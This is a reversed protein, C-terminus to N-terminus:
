EKVIEGLVMGRLFFDSEQLIFVSDATMVIRKGSAEPAIDHKIAFAHGQIRSKMQLWRRLKPCPNSATM